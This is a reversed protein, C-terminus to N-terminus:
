DHVPKAATDSKIDSELPRKNEVASAAENQETLAPLNKVHQAAIKKLTEDTLSVGINLDTNKVAISIDESKINSSPNSVLLATLMQAPMVIRQADRKTTCKINAGITLTKESYSAYILCGNAKVAAANIGFSNLLKEELTCGLWLMNNNDTNNTIKMLEKNDTVPKGKGSSLDVTKKILNNSGIAILNDSLETIFVQQNDKPILYVIRPGIKEIIVKKKTESEVVSIVKDIDIKKEAKLMFLASIAPTIGQAQQTPPSIAFYLSNINDWGMGASDLKKVLAINKNEEIQNKVADLKTLEAINIKGIISCEYPVLSFPNFESNEEPTNKKTCGASFLCAAFAITVLSITIMPRKALYMSM